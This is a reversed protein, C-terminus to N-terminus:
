APVFAAAKELADIVEEATREPSNNWYSFDFADDVWPLGVASVRQMRRFADDHLACAEKSAGNGRLYVHGAIAVSIAGLVCLGGAVDVQTHKALGRTRILDAAKLLVDRIPDPKDFTEGDFPM